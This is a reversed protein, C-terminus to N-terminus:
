GTYEKHILLINRFKMKVHLRDHEKDRLIENLEDFNESLINAMFPVNIIMMTFLFDSCCSGIFGFSTLIMHFILYAFYGATTTEDVGPLYLDVIPILENETVYVYLPFLYYTFLSVSYM